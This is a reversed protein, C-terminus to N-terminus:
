QNRLEATREDAYEAFARGSEAGIEENLTAIVGIINLGVSAEYMTKHMARQADMVISYASSSGTFLASKILSVAELASLVGAEGVVIFGSRITAMVPGTESVWILNIPQVGLAQPLEFTAGSVQAVIEAALDIDALWDSNDKDLDALALLAPVDESRNDVLIRTTESYDILETRPTFTRADDTANGATAHRSGSASLYPQPDLTTHM